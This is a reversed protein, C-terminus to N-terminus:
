NKGSGVSMSTSAHRVDIDGLRVKSSINYQCLYIIPVSSEVYMVFLTGEARVTFMILKYLPLSAPNNQVVTSCALSFHPNACTHFLLNCM